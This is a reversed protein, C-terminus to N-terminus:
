SMLLNREWEAKQVPWQRTEEETRWFAIRTDKQQNCSINTAHTMKQGICCITFSKDNIKLKGM